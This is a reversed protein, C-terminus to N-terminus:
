AGHDEEEFLNIPSSPGSEETPYKEKARLAISQCEAFWDDRKTSPLVLVYELNKAAKPVAVVTPRPANKRCIGEDKIQKDWYPCDKCTLM